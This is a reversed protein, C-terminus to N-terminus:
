SQAISFRTRQDDTCSSVWGYPEQTPDSATGGAARVREVAAKIDDVRYLPVCTAQTHGGSLGAMPATGLVQWGDRVRGHEVRWGLVSGYFARARDSDGVELTIYSVDGQRAGNVAPRQEDPSAQYIAFPMGQDDICNAITGHPQANPAEAQGGAARVHDVAASIDGVAFCLFLTSQAFQSPLRLGAQSFYEAAAVSSAIGHNPQIDGGVLRAENSGPKVTWGLVASFFDAAKQVDPVWLSVYGFDGPQISTPNTTTSNMFDGEPRLLARELRSRLHEAFAAHPQVPVIPMRLADFPDPM